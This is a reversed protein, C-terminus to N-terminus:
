RQTAKPFCHNPAREERSGVADDADTAPTDCGLAPSRRRYESRPHEGPRSADNRSGPCPFANPSGEIGAHARSMPRDDGALRSRLAGVTSRRSIKARRPNSSRRDTELSACSAQAAGPALHRLPAPIAADDARARVRGPQPGIWHMRRDNMARRAAPSFRRARAQRGVTVADRSPRARHERLTRSGERRRGGPGGREGLGCDDRINFTTPGGTKEFVLHGLFGPLTEILALNRRMTEEFEDHSREPLSFSDIRFHLNPQKDTDITFLCM